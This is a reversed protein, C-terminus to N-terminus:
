NFHKSTLPFCHIHYTDAVLPYNAEFILGETVIELLKALATQAKHQKFIKTTIISFHFLISLCPM